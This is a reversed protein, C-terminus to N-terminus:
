EVVNVVLVGDATETWAYVALGAAPKVFIDEYRQIQLAAADATIPTSSELVKCIAQVETTQFRATYTTGVALSLAGILDVPADTLEHIQTAM